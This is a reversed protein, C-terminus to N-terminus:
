PVHRQQFKDIHYFHCAEDKKKFSFQATSIDGIKQVTGSKLEVGPGVTCKAGIWVGDELVISKVMLDFTPKKYNHNGCLLMAWQSICCHNAITVQDLNDIWVREGIWSHDGISLGWPYKIIVLPKIIVGRGIKAELMLLLVVKLRSPYPTATRFFAISVLYWLAIKWKPRPHYWSNDYQELRMM